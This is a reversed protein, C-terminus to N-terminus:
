DKDERIINVSSGDNIKDQGMTIVKDGQKLTNSIIEIWGNTELGTEVPIMRAKNGEALFIVKGDGRRLVAKIPVGISQRSELIIGIKAMSGPVIGEEPNKILAKVKFNRLISDIMLSRHSITLEGADIGNIITFMKTHGKRIDTYHQAPLFASVELISLDDIRLVPTGAGVMEGQEHFRATIHGTIPARVLSDELDKVAMIMQSQAQEKQSLVLDARARAEELSARLQKFRSDQMELANKTVAGDDEYLRKFREYDIRAKELDSEIKTITAIKSRYDSEAVRVAQQSIEKAQTLKIKDTQFLATKDSTVYDGEEVFINDIIGPIRASVLAYNKSEVNGSTELREEFVMERCPMIVVPTVKDDHNSSGDQAFSLGFNLSYSIFVLGTLICVRWKIHNRTRRKVRM